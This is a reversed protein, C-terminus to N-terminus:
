ATEMFARKVELLRDLEDGVEAIDEDGNSALVEASSADRCESEHDFVQRLGCDVLSHLGQELLDVPQQAYESQEDSSGIARSRENNRQLTSMPQDMGKM